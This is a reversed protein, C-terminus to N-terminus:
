RGKPDGAGSSTASVRGAGLRTWLAAWPATVNTRDLGAVVDRWWPARSWDELTGRTDPDQLHWLAFAVDSKDACAAVDGDELRALAWRKLQDFARAESPVVKGLGAAELSARRQGIRGVWEEASAASWREHVREATESLVHSCAAMIADPHGDDRAGVWARLAGEELLAAEPVLVGPWVLLDVSLREAATAELSRVWEPILVDADLVVTAREALTRDNRIQRLLTLLHPLAGLGHDVGGLSWFAVRRPPAPARELELLRHILRADDPGEVLLLHDSELAGLLDLATESGLATLIPSLPTAHYGRRAPEPRSAAIPRVVTDPRAPEDALHFVQEWPAARLLSENHTTLFVQVQDAAELRAFLRRQIDRHIHSDPEDLLVLHLDGPAAYLSLLVEIVQLTGSGLVSLDRFGGRNLLQATVQTDPDTARSPGPDLRFRGPVGTLISSVDDSFRGLEDRAGLDALRNRLVEGSRRQHVLRAVNPATQFPEIPRVTAVPSAFYTRFPNPWHRCVENLTAEKGPPVSPSAEYLTGRAQRVRFGVPLREGGLDLTAVLDLEAAGEHFLASYSPSRVSGLRTPDLYQPELRWDSRRLNQKPVAKGIQRALLGFLEAWLALGELTTTKGSNNRGTLLNVSPHCELTTDAFCKFGVMRFTAVKLPM